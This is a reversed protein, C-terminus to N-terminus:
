IYINPNCYFRMDCDRCQKESKVVLSNDFDKNEIKQVVEEFSNITDNINLDNKKFTIYPSGFEEKPYYLHIKSVTYPTREEILHAYVELQRRYSNL